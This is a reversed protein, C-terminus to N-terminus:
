SCICPRAPPPPLLSGLWAVTERHGAARAAVLGAALDCTAPKHSALWRVIRLLGRECARLFAAPADAVYARWVARAFDSVTLCGPCSGWENLFPDWFMSSEGAAEADMFCDWLQRAVQAVSPPKELHGLECVQENYRHDLPELAAVIGAPRRFWPADPTSGLMLGPCLPGALLAARVAEGHARDADPAHYKPVHLPTHVHEPPEGLSILLSIVKPYASLRGGARAASDHITTVALCVAAPSVPHGRCLLWLAADLQGAVCSRVLADDVAHRADSDGGGLWPGGLLTAAQLHGAACADAFQRAVRDSPRAAVPARTPPVDAASPEAGIATAYSPPLDEMAM